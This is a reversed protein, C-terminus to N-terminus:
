VGGQACLGPLPAPQGPQAQGLLSKAQSLDRIKRQTGKGIYKVDLGAKPSPQPNAPQLKLPASLVAGAMLTMAAAILGTRVFTM